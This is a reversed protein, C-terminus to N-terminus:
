DMSLPFVSTATTFPNEVVRHHVAYLSFMVNNSWDQIGIKDAVRRKYGSVSQRSVGMEKAVEESSHGVALLRLVEREQGSLGELGRKAPVWRHPSFKATM